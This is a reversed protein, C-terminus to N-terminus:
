KLKPADDPNVGEKLEPKKDKQADSDDDSEPEPTKQPQAPAPAGDIPDDEDIRHLSRVKQKEAKKIQRKSMNAEREAAKYDEETLCLEEGSCLMGNSEVGRLKGRKIHAGNPLYSDHLATPVLDGVNVNQAGTVIQEEGTGVDIRFLWLHDSDPHREMAVVKGVVVNKMTESLDTCEEIEFGALTMRDCLEEVSVTIDTYRKLWSLSVKM